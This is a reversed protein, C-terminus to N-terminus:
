IDDFDLYVDIESIECQCTLVIGTDIETDLLSYFNYTDYNLTGENIKARCAACNGMYCSYPVKVGNDLLEDLLNNGPKGTISGEKDNIKYKIEIM